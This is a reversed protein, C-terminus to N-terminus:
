RLWPHVLYPRMQEHIEDASRGADERLWGDSWALGKRMFAELELAPDNAFPNSFYSLGLKRADRGRARIEELDLQALAPHTM